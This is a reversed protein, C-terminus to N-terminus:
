RAGLYMAGLAGVVAASSAASLTGALIPSGIRRAIPVTVAAAAIVLGTLIPLGFLIGFLLLGEGPSLCSFMASCEQQESTQTPVGLTGVVLGGAVTAYWGVAVLV